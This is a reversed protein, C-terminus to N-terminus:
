RGGGVAEADRLSRYMWAGGLIAALAGLLGVTVGGGVGGTANRIEIGDYLLPLLALVALVCVDRAMRRRRRAEGVLALVAILLATAGLVLVFVGHWAGAETGGQTLPIATLSPAAAQSSGDSSGDGTQSTDVQPAGFGANVANLGNTTVGYHYDQLWPLLPSWTLALCGVVALIGYLPAWGGRRSFPVRDRRYDMPAGILSREDGM